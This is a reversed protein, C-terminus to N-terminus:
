MFLGKAKYDEFSRKRMYGIYPNNSDPESVASPDLERILRAPNGAIVCHGEPFSKTVVSGAGVVTFDGISTNPLIISGAGIWCCRGIWVEGPLQKSVDHPDHNSSVISVNAAVATHDGITIQGIGQIYCGPEIGPNCDIGITINRHGVVKSAHHVGWYVQRNIGIVKQFFWVQLDIEGQKRQYAELFHFMPLLKVIGYLIRQAVRYVFRWGRIHLTSLPRTNM